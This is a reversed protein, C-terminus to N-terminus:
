NKGSATSSNTSTNGGSSSCGVSKGRIIHDDVTPYKLRINDIVDLLNKADMALVHSASLMGRQYEAEVTVNLYKQVLKFSDVLDAMDKSLVKHAMEVQRHTPPPFAPVLVDVSSLLHRLEVGVTRVKELYQSSLQHKVAQSLSMVARVVNTTAEYVGDNSRDLAATKSSRLEKVREDASNPTSSGDKEFAYAHHCSSHPPPLSPSIHGPHPATSDSYSDTSTESGFSATISLRKKLNLEEQLLWKSDEESQKQQQKIQTFLARHEPGRLSLVETEETKPCRSRGNMPSSSSSQNMQSPINPPLSTGRPQEEEEEGAAAATWPTAYGSGGLSDSFRVDGLTEFLVAKLEQFTPRERPEYSWCQLMLSYLRSPCGPPRSLREGGELMGIVESNKIGQFPKVGFMLIEWICVGFMWVDSATTFRRFNISEPAMWKIPLKGRSAKYYSNHEIWRSLGFDALKVVNESSVLVNRAAIDRHVFKKSELYSLATSLQHSYLLLHSLDLRSKNNQLYARLEGLRALEMVIWIPPASVIGLLKIIHRHDFQQMIFAEELFKDAMNGGAVKCTKVAVCIEEGSRSYIGRHVDGFQGEGIIDQLELRSRPIEYDRSPSSYDGCEEEDLIESYDESCLVKHGPRCTSFESDLSDSNKRIWISTKSQNVIRCYGDILDAMNEAVQVSPCTISLLDASGAVDLQLVPKGTRYDPEGGRAPLITRISKIHSFDAMHTATVASDIIYAIGKSAGIVLEVPISWGSGLACRFREHDFRYVSKLIEFFKLVCEYDTLHSFKKFNALILKRLAKPKQNRLILGPFFRRLGVEKELYEFNSKKELSIGPMDKFYRRIEICCLQIATDLDLSEFNKQLYDHRVQDYFYSFTIKDRDYLDSLDTPLYRIRLELAWEEDECKLKDANNAKVQSLTMDQHLWIPERSEVNMLRMAYLHSYAKEDESLRSLLLQIIGKIDISEGVKLTKAEGSPLHVRISPCEEGQSAKRARPPPSSSAAASM